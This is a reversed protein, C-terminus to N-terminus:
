LNKLSNLLEEREHINQNGSAYKQLADIHNRKFKKNDRLNIYCKVIEVGVRDNLTNNIVKYYDYASKELDLKPFADILSKIRKFVEKEFFDGESIKQGYYGKHLWDKLGDVNPYKQLVEVKNIDTRSLFLIPTSIKEDRLKLALDIGNKAIHNGVLVQDIIVLDPNSEKFVSLIKSLAHQRKTEGYRINLYIRVWDLFEKFQKDSEPYINYLEILNKKIVDFQFYQNEILIILKKNQSKLDSGVDM